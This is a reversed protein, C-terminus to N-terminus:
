AGGKHPLQRMRLPGPIVVIGRENISPDLDPDAALDALGRPLHCRRSSEPEDGATRHGLEWVGGLLPGPHFSEPNGNGKPQLVVSGLSLPEPDQARAGTGEEQERPVGAKWSNGRLVWASM